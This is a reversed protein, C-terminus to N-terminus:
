HANKNVLDNYLKEGIDDFAYKKKDRSRRIQALIRDHRRSAEQLETPSTPTLKLRGKIPPRNSLSFDFTELRGQGPDPFDRYVELLYVNGAKNTRNYWIALLLGESKHEKHYRILEEVRKEYETSLMTDYQVSM